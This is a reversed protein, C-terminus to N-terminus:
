TIRRGFAFANALLGMLKRFRHCARACVCVCRCVSVHRVFRARSHALNVYIIILFLSRALSRARCSTPMQIEYPVIPTYHRCLTCMFLLFDRMCVCVCLGRLLLLVSRRCRRCRYCRCWHLPLVDFRTSVRLLFFSLFFFSFSFFFALLLRIARTSTTM